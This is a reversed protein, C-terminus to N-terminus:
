CGALWVTHSLFFFFTGVGKGHNACGGLVSGQSNNELRMVCVCWERCLGFFTRERSYGWHRIYGRWCVLCEVRVQLHIHVHIVTLVQTSVCIHLLWPRRGRSDIVPSLHSSLCPSPYSFLCNYSLTTLGTISTLHAYPQFELPHLWIKHPQLPYFFAECLLLCKFQLKFFSYSKGPCLLLFAYKLWFFCCTFICLIWPVWLSSHTDFGLNCISSFTFTNTEWDHEVRKLGMSQLGHAECTAWVMFFRSAIRSVRIQDRPWSSGRTFPIVVWELIRAQLIGHVSSRPPGYDM